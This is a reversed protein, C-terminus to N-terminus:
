FSLPPKVPSCLDCPVDPIPPRFFLVPYISYFFQGPRERFVVLTPVLPGSSSSSSSLSLCILRTHFPSLLPSDLLGGSTSPGSPRTNASFPADASFPTIVTFSTIPHKRVDPYPALPSLVNRVPM